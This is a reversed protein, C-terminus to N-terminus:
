TSKDDRFPFGRDGTWSRVPVEGISSLMGTQWPILGGNGSTAVVTSMAKPAVFYLLPALVLLDGPLLYFPLRLRAQLGNRYPIASAINGFQQLDPDPSLKMTSSGDLRYGLDLFVLGDGAENLVGELGLGIRLNMEVGTIEGTTHQDPSFGNLVVNAGHLRM